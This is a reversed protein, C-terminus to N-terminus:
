RIPPSFTSFLLLPERGTNKVAHVIGRSAQFTDGKAIHRWEKDEMFEGSGEVVYFYEGAEEHVHPLIEFGPVILVELNNLRGDTQSGAMFHNMFVGEFAPHRSYSSKM